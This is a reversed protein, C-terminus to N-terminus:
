VNEGKISDGQIRGLEDELINSFKMMASLMQSLEERGMRQTVRDTLRKYTETEDTLVENGLKTIKLCSIRHDKTCVERSIYGKNELMTLMRSTAPKKTGFYDNLKTPTLGDVPMTELMKHMVSLVTYEGFTINKIPKLQSALTRLHHMITRLDNQDLQM